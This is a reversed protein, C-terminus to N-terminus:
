LSYNEEILDNNQKIHKTPVDLYITLIFSVKYLLLIEQNLLQKLFLIRKNIKKININKNIDKKKIINDKTNQPNTQHNKKTM